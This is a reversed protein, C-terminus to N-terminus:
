ETTIINEVCRAARADDNNYVVVVKLFANLNNYEFLMFLMTSTHVVDHQDYTM